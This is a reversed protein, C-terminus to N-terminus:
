PAAEEESPLPRRLDEVAELLRAQETEYVAYEGPVAGGPTYLPSIQNALDLIDARSFETRAVAATENAAWRYDEVRGRWGPNGMLTGDSAMARVMTRLAAELRDLQARRAVRDVTPEVVPLEEEAKGFVARLKERFGM